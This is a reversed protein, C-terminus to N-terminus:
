RVLPLLREGILDLQEDDWVAFPLPGGAALIIEEVGLAGYSAIREACEEPTGGLREARWAELSLDDLMGGSWDRMADYRKEVDAHDSGILIPLGVSRRVTAPDRGTAACARALTDLLGRYRDPTMTWVVNWGDAHEAVVRMIKPGGKGGVWVPPGGPLAAKLRAATEGLLHIRETAPAFPIGAEIFEEENWGAGIGLEIRGGSADHMTHAAQALLAPNRFPSCLVLSGIRVRATAGAIATMLTLPEPSWQRGPPGGYRTLDIFLHDSVWVSDFGLAEARRAYSVVREVTVGGGDPFSFPYHPLALGIRM